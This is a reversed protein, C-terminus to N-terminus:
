SKQRVGPKNKPIVTEAEHQQKPIVLDFSAEQKM